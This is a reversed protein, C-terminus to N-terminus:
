SRLERTGERGAPQHKAAKARRQQISVGPARGYDRHWLTSAPVGSLESLAAYTNEPSHGSRNLVAIVPDLQAVM